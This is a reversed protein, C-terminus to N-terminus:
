QRRPYLPSSDPVAELHRRRSPLEREWREVLNRTLRFGEMAVDLTAKEEATFLRDSTKLKMWLDNWNLLMKFANISLSHDRDNTMWHEVDLGQMKGLLEGIRAGMRDLEKNEACWVCEDVVLPARCRWCSAKSASVFSSGM